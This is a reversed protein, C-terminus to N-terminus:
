LAPIQRLQGPFGRWSSVNAKHQSELAAKLHMCQFDPLFLLKFIKNLIYKLALECNGTGKVRTLSSKKKGWFLIRKFPM